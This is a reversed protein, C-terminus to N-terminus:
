ETISEPLEVCMDEWLLKPVGGKRNEVEDDVSRKKVSQGETHRKYAEEHICVRHGDHDFQHTNCGDKGGNAFGPLDYRRLAGADEDKHGCDSVVRVSCVTGRIAM